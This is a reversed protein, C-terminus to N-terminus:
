WTLLLIFCSKNALNRIFMETLDFINFVSMEQELQGQSQSQRWSVNPWISVGNAGTRQQQQRTNSASKWKGWTTQFTKWTQWPRRTGQWISVNTM